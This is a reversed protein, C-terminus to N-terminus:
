KFFYGFGEKCIQLYVKRSVRYWEEANSMKSICVKAMKLHCEAELEFINETVALFDIHFLLPNATDYSRMRQEFGARSLGPKVLYFRESTNPNLHVDGLLYLGGGDPIENRKTDEHNIFMKDKVLEKEMQKLETLRKM